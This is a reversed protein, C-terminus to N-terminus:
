KFLNGQQVPELTKLYSEIIEIYKITEPITLNNLFYESNITNAKIITLENDKYSVPADPHKEILFMLRKRIRIDLAKTKDLLNNYDKLHDNATKRAM